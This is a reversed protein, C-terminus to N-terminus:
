MPQGLLLHPLLLSVPPVFAIVILGPILIAYYRLLPRFAQEPPTHCIMCTEYLLWGIPPAFAGLAMAIVLVLGYQVINVHLSQAIPVLVPAFILIASIGELALGMIPIVLLTLLIFIWGSNGIKEIASLLQAPLGANAISWSLNQAGATLFLVMGATIASSEVISVLNRLNTRYCLALILGIVVAVSSVETPSAYGGAIGGVLVVPIALSPLAAVLSRGVVSLPAKEPIREKRRRARINIGVMLFIALLAAPLLGGLFLGSISISTVSGLILLTVCPPITEGMIASAAVAASIEGSSYGKERLPKELVGGVAAIDASKSGSLGSFVYMMFVIVHLSGGHFRGFISEALDALGRSLRSGSMIFGALIFFPIAVLLFNGTVGSLNTAVVSMTNQSVIIYVGSACLLVLVIPAGIVLLIAFAIIAATTGVPIPNIVIGAYKLMGFEFGALVVVALLGGALVRWSHSLMKDLAFIAFLAGGVPVCATFWSEPIHLFTTSSLGAASVASWSVFALAVPLAVCVIDVAAQRVPRLREPLRRDLFTLAPQRGRRYAVAGGIFAIISLAFQAIEPSWPWDGGGIRVVVEGFLVVLEGLMAIIVVVLAVNCLMDILQTLRGSPAPEDEDPHALVDIAAIQPPVATDSAPAGGPSAAAPAQAADPPVAPEPATRPVEGAQSEPPGPEAPADVRKSRRM